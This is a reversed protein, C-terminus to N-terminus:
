IWKFGPSNDVIQEVPEVPLKGHNNNTVEDDSGEDNWLGSYNATTPAFTTGIYPDECEVVASVPVGNIARIDVRCINSLDPLIDNGLKDKGSGVWGLLHFKVLELFADIEKESNHM